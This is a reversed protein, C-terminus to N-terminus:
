KSTQTLILTTTVDAIYFHLLTSEAVALEFSAATYIIIVGVFTVHSTYGDKSNGIFM